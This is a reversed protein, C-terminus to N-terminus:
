KIYSKCLESRMKEVKIYRKQLKDPNHIYYIICRMPATLYVNEYSPQNEDGGYLKEVRDLETRFYEYRTKGLGKEVSKGDCYWWNFYAKMVDFLEMNEHLHQECYQYIKLGVDPSIEGCIKVNSYKSLDEIYEIGKNDRYEKFNECQVFNTRVLDINNEVWELTDDSSYGESSASVNYHFSYDGQMNQILQDAISDGYGAHHVKLGFKDAYENDFKKRVTRFQRKHDIISNTDNEYDGDNRKEKLIKMKDFNVRKKFNENITHKSLKKGKRRNLRSFSKENSDMKQYNCYCNAFYLSTKNLNSINIVKKLILFYILNFM